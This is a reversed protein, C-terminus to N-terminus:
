LTHGQRTAAARLISQGHDGLPHAAKARQIAHHTRAIDEARKASFHHHDTKM